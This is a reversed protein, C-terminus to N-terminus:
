PAEPTALWRALHAYVRRDNLLGVHGLGGIVVGDVDGEWGVPLASAATVLGDGVLRALPGEADARMTAGVFRFAIPRHLPARERSFGHRLDRVGASRADALTALPATYPLAQLVSSAAHGAQALPSGRLPVGLGVVSEVRELWPLGGAEAQICAQLAVLGGMSHGVITLSRIPLPYAEALTELLGALARGNEVLPLGTNYRLYLPTYGAVEQLREGYSRAPAGSPDRRQWATEDCCLGHVFVCVRDTAEPLADRLGKPDLPLPRGGAYFGMAHALPNAAGALADGHTGNLASRLGESLRGPPLAPAAVAAVRLAGRSGHRVSAYALGAIGDHVREIAGALLGLGPVGRVAGFATRSVARHIGEVARSTEVVGAALAAAYGAGLSPDPLSV